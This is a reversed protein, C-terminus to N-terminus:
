IWYITSVGNKDQDSILVEENSLSNLQCDSGFLYLLDLLQNPPVCLLKIICNSHYGQFVQWSSPVITEGSSSRASVLDGSLVPCAVLIDRVM